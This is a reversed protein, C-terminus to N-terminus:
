TQSYNGLCNLIPLPRRALGSLSRISKPLEVQFAQCPSLLVEKQDTVLGM